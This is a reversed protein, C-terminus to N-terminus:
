ATKSCTSQIFLSVAQNFSKPKALNMGHSANAIQVQQSHAVYQSLLRASRQYREPSLAGTIVLLPLKSLTTLQEISIPSLTERSQAILTHANDEVMTKFWGVMQRWTNKGSVADIFLALGEEDRGQALYAAAEHLAPLAVSNETPNIAPDALLLGTLTQPNKLAYQLAIQAGRSHGLVYVNQGPRRCANIVDNVAAIHNALQFEYASASPNNPWYGPLSLAVVQYSHSLQSIQWRWYRFDCLSGHVLVLLDGQGQTVYYTASQAKFAQTSHLTLQTLADIEM